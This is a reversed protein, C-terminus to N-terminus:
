PAGTPFAMHPHSLVKPGNSKSTGANSREVAASYIVEAFCKSLNGRKKPTDQEAKIETYSNSFFM